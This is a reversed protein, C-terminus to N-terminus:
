KVDPAAPVPATQPEASDAADDSRSPGAPQAEPPNALDHQIQDRVTRARDADPGTPALKLYANLDNLTAPLNGLRGHIDALLLHLAVNDPKLESAAAASKEAESYEQMEYLAHALEFYAQWSNADLDTAKRAASEADTFQKNSSLLNALMCYADVYREQSVEISKRLAQEANAPDNLNVYAVGMQAYAEYYDPYAKIAHQFQVLSGRYDSKQYLLVLAKQMAEHAKEPISLERASVTASKSMAKPGHNPHLAVELGMVTGDVIIQQSVPEYDIADIVLLYTGARVEAFSFEGNSNTFASASTAGTIQRLDVRVSDVARNTADDRIAGSVEFRINARGRTGTGPFQSGPYQAALSLPSLLIAVVPLLGALRRM